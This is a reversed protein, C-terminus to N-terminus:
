TNGGARTRQAHEDPTEIGDYVLDNESAWTQGISAAKKPNPAEIQQAVRAGTERVHGNAVFKM